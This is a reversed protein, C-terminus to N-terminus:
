RSFPDKFKSRSNGRNTLMNIAYMPDYINTPKEMISVKKKIKEVKNKENAILPPRPLLNKKVIKNPHAEGNATGMQQRNTNYKNMYECFTDFDNINKHIIPKEKVEMPPTPTEIPKTKIKEKKDQKPSIEMKITKKEERKKARALRAKELVALQKETRPKANYKKLAKGRGKRKPEITEMVDPEDNIIISEEEEAITPQKELKKNVKKGVDTTFIDEQGRRVQPTTEIEEEESDVGNISEIPEISVDPFIDLSSDYKEYKNM